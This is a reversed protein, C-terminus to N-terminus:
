LNQNHCVQGEQMQLTLRTKSYQSLSRAHINSAIARGKISDSTRICTTATISATYWSHGRNECTLHRMNCSKSATAYMCSLQTIWLNPHKVPFTDFSASSQFRLTKASVQFHGIEQVFRTLEFHCVKTQCARKAVWVGFEGWLNAQLKEKNKSSGSTGMDDNGRTTTLPCTTVSHYRAGSSRRPLGVYSTDNSMHNTNQQQQVVSKSRPPKV